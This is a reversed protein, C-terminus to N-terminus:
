GGAETAGFNIGSESLEGVLVGNSSWNPLLCGAKPARADGTTLELRAM